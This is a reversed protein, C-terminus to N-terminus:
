IHQKIFLLNNKFLLGNMHELTDSVTTTGIVNNPFSLKTKVHPYIIEKVRGKASSIKTFCEPYM